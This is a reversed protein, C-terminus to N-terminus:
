VVDPDPGVEVRHRGGAKARYVAEDALNILMSPSMGEVVRVTATGLSVTVRDAVPSAAHPLSLADVAALVREAVKRAGSGGTDPLLMVFEEGGYRAAMDAPRLLAERLVRGMASLCNDGGLHGYFDNYRKFHDVDIFVLSLKENNRLARDWEAAFTENFFRRNALRTLADERAMQELKRSLIDLEGKEIELLRAQLFQLRLQKEHFYCFVLSILCGSGYYNSFQPWNIPQDLAMVTAVAAVGALVYTVLASRPLLSVGGLIILIAMVIYTSHQALQPDHFLLGGTLMAYLSIGGSIGVYTQYYADWRRRQALMLGALLGIGAPVAAVMWALQDGALIEHGFLYFSLGVMGLYILSLIWSAAHAMAVAQTTCYRVFEQELVRDPFRLGVPLHLLLREVRYHEGALAQGTNETMLPDDGVALEM